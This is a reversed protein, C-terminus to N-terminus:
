RLPPRTVEGVQGVLVCLRSFAPREGDGVFFDLYRVDLSPSGISGTLSTFGDGLGAGAAVSTGSSVTERRCNHGFPCHVFDRAGPSQKKQAKWKSPLYEEM